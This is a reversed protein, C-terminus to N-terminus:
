FTFVANIEYVLNNKEYTFPIDIKENKLFDYFNNINKSQISLRLENNQYQLHKVKLHHNDLKLFLLSVNKIFSKTRIENTKQITISEVSNRTSYYYQFVFFLMIIYTFFAYLAFSSKFSTKTKKLYEQKYLLFQEPKIKIINTIELKLEYKVYELIDELLNQKNQKYFYIMQQYYIVFYDKTFFLDIDDNSVKNEYYLEFIYVFPIKDKSYTIQYQKSFFLYSYYIDKELAGIVSIKDKLFDYLYKKQIKENVNIIHPHLANIYNLKNM